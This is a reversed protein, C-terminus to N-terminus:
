RADAVLQDFWDDRQLLFHFDILDDSTLPPGSPRVESSAEQPEMVEVGASMLLLVIKRDAPKEVPVECSPCDFSYTGEGSEQEVQLLISRADMEVEGCQPCTARITTM